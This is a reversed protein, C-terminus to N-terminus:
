RTASAARREPKPRAASVRGFFTAALGVILGFYVYGLAAELAAVLRLDHAALVDGYGLTTWTVTSFYLATDFDHAIAHGDALGAAAHIAAFDFVLLLAQVVLSGFCSRVSFKGAVLYVLAVLGSAALTIALMLAVGPREAVLGPDLRLVLLAVLM